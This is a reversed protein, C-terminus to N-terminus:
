RAQENMLQNIALSRLATFQLRDKNFENAM